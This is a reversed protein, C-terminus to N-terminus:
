TLNFPFIFPFVNNLEDDFISLPKSSEVCGVNYMVPTAESPNLPNSGIVDYTRGEWKVVDGTEPPFTLGLQAIYFFRAKGKVLEAQYREDFSTISSGGPLAVVEADTVESAVSSEVGEVPDYSSSVRAIKTSTGFKNILNLASNQAKIYDFKAM